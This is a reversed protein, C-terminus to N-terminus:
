SHRRIHIGYIVSILAGGAAGLQHSEVAVAANILAETTNASFTSQAESVLKAGVVALGIVRVWLPYAPSLVFGMVLLGHLVGSFGAYPAYPSSILLMGGGVFLMLCLTASTMVRVSLHNLLLHTTLLLGAINMTAHFFTFHVLHASVIQWPAFSTDDTAWLALRHFVPEPMACLLLM